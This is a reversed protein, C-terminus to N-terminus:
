AGSGGQGGEEGRCHQTTRPDAPPWAALATHTHTHTHQHLSAGSDFGDPALHHVETLFAADSLSPFLIHDLFVPLMSLFGQPGATTLTFATHDVDTWANTGQALSRGALQDIVGKFPYQESGMFVLHELTHPLGDDPRAYDSQRAETAVTFYGNV